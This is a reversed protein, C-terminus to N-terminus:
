PECILAPSPASFQIGLDRIDGPQESGFRIPSELTEGAASTLRIAAGSQPTVFFNDSVAFVSGYVRNAELWASGNGPRIEVTRVPIRYNAIIIQFYSYDRQRIRIHVNNSIPCPVPRAEGYDNRGGELRDAAETSLDLHFQDPESCLPNGQIPCLNDVMVIETQTPTTVEWCEGCAEAAQGAFSSGYFPEAIAATFNQIRVFAPM